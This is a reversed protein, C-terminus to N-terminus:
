KKSQTKNSENHRVSEFKANLDINLAAKGIILRSVAGYSYQPKKSQNHVMVMTECHVCLDGSRKLNVRM